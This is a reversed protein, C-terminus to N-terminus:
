FVNNFPFNSPLISTVPLRCLLPVCSSSSSLFFLLYQLYFPFTSSRLPHLIRDLFPQPGTTLCVTSRIYPTQKNFFQIFVYVFM